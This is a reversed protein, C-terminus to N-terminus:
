LYPNLHFPDIENKDEEENDEEEFNENDSDDDDHIEYEEDDDDDEYTNADLSNQNQSEPNLIFDDNDMEENHQYGIHSDDNLPPKQYDPTWPENEVSQSQQDNNTNNYNEM